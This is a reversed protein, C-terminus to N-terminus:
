GVVKSKNTFCILNKSLLLYTGSLSNECTYVKYDISFSFLKILGVLFHVCRINNGISSQFPHQRHFKELYCTKKLFKIFVLYFNSFQNM